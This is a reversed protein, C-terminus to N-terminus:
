QLHDADAWDKKADDGNQIELNSRPVFGRDGYLTEIYVFLDGGSIIRVRTGPELMKSAPITQNPGSEKLPVEEKVVLNYQGMEQAGITGRQMSACGFLVLVGLVSGSFFYSLKMSGNQRLFDGEGFM